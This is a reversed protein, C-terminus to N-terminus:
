QRSSVAERWICAKFTNTVVTVFSRLWLTVKSAVAFGGCAVCGAAGLTTLSIGVELTTLSVCVGLTALLVGVGLTFVFLCDLNFAVISM